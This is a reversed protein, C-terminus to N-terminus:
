FTDLTQYLCKMGIDLEMSGQDVFALDKGCIQILATDSKAADIALRIWRM